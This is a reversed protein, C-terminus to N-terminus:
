RVIACALAQQAFALNMSLDDAVVISPLGLVEAAYDIAGLALALLTYMDIAWYTSSLSFMALTVLLMYTAHPDTKRDM